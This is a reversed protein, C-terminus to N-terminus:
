RRSALDACGTEDPLLPRFRLSWTKGGGTWPTAANATAAAALVAKASEGTVTVCGVADGPGVPDGPLAPGPWAVTAPAPPDPAEPASYPVSIVALSSAPFPGPAGRPEILDDQVDRLAARAARQADTLSHAADDDALDLAYV